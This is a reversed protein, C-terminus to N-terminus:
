IHNCEKTVLGKEMAIKIDEARRKAGLKTLINSVHTKVTSEAIFLAEGIEKNSKGDIMLILVDYERESIGSIAPGNKLSTTTDDQRSNFIIRYLIFGIGVGMLTIFLIILEIENNRTLWPYKGLQILLVFTVALGGFKLNTAKLM